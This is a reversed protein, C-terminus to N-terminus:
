IMGHREETEQSIPLFVQNVSVKTLIQEIVEERYEKKMGVIIGCEKGLDRHYFEFVNQELDHTANKKTVLFGTLHYGQSVIHKYIRKGIDGNGYIYLSPYRKCFRDLAYLDYTDNGVTRNEIRRKYHEWIGKTDFLNRSEIYRLTELGSMNEVSKVKLVPYRLKTVLEYIHSFYLNGFENDRSIGIRETDYVSKLVYGKKLFYQSLGIEYSFIASTYDKPYELGKWFDYFERSHLLRNQILLFYGQLHWSLPIGEREGRGSHETMGWMDVDADADVVQFLESLPYFFGYITDNFLVLQHYGSIRGSSILQLIVDKYAGADYGQNSRIIVEDAYSEIYSIGQNIGGNSVALLYDAYPRIGKLLDSIYSDVIGEPDYFMFIVLRKM